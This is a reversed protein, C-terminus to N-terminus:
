QIFSQLINVPSPSHENNREPIDLHTRIMKIAGKVAKSSTGLIDGLFDDGAVGQLHYGSLVIEAIILVIFVYITKSM